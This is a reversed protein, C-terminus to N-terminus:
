TESNYGEFTCHGSAAALTSYIRSVVQTTRAQVESKQKEVPPITFFLWRYWGVHDGMKADAILCRHEPLLRTVFNLSCGFIARAPTSGVVKRKWCLMVGELQGAKRALDLSRCAVTGFFFGYFSRAKFSGTVTCSLGLSRCVM